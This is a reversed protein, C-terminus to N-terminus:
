SGSLSATGSELGEFRSLRSQFTKLIERHYRMNSDLQHRWFSSKVIREAKDLQGTQHEVCSKFFRVYERHSADWSWGGRNSLALITSETEKISRRLPHNTTLAAVEEAEDPMEEPVQFGAKGTELLSIVLLLDSTIMCDFIMSQEDALEASSTSLWRFKKGPIWGIRRIEQETGKAWISPDSTMYSAIGVVEGNTTVIPGGSNGKIFECDVEIKSPGVGKIRGKLTLLISEGGSDGLAWVEPKQEIRSRSAFKLALGPTEVLPFRVIDIGMEDTTSDSIGVVEGRSGVLVPVGRFDTFALEKASAVHVNTYVYARGNESAIFATGAHGGARAM